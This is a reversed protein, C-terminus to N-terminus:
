GLTVAAYAEVLLDDAPGELRGPQAIGDLVVFRLRDGRTKKDRRMAEHLQLWRGGVYGLPLGLRGLLDRHQAVTGPDLRGALRALEAAYVMGVSVAEGHRWRYHEGHEIAHGFTHGYNLIERLHSERLDASVVDAKVQIARRVLEALEESVPDTAAETSADVIRLIEPDAIFGCKVVEALGAVLDARPLTRLTSLDCLVASPSHFAGVLNKGAATNIGTKGGVAADVMALLTTPVQIVRVGRLWTAAVFGALDTTAGGGIGVVVDERGFAAEGLASWSRTLMDATKADEGDPVEITSVGYGAATLAESAGAVARAVPAAHMLLVRRAQDGVLPVLEQGLDTGIVVQYDREARVDIRQTM